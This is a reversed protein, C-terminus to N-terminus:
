WVIRMYNIELWEFKLMRDIIFFVNEVFIEAWSEYFIKLNSIGFIHDAHLSRPLFNRKYCHSHQLRITMDYSFQFYTINDLRTYKLM